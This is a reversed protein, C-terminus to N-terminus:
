RADAISLIVYSGVTAAGMAMKKNHFAGQLAGFTRPFSLMSEPCSHARFTPAGGEGPAALAAAFAEQWFSGLAVVGPM